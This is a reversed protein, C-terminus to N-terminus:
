FEMFFSIRAKNDMERDETAQTPSWALTSVCSKGVGVMIGACDMGGSVAADEFLVSCGQTVWIDEGLTAETMSVGVQTAGAIGVTPSFSEKSLRSMLSVSVPQLISMRPRM